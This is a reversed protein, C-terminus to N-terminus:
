FEVTLTGTFTRYNPYSYEDFRFNTPNDRLAVEPDWGSYDTWTVLNRGSVAVKVKNFIDSLGGLQSNKFTYGVSVERLKTFTGDEVFHSSASALNYLNSAGNSYQTHKGQAGYDQLDQHRDNFYLLQKTYNYIDGGQQHDVLVYLFAGKYDLTTSLGLNWEPNSNGINTAIKTGTEDALYVPQEFETGVSSVINGNEDLTKPIVYGDSNIEFMDTTLEMGGIPNGGVGNVVVGDVVTLQSIDTLLQNGYMAGYPLDEEVRFLDFATNTNRTFAPIGGLDTIEQTIKDWNLTATWNLDRKKVIDATLGFELATSQIEGVNQWQATFGAVSSLPVLIYDNQTSSVAYNAELSFRGGFRIDTGVELEQVTSPKLDKNGLINRSTGTQNVSFTEYQASFPPRQGSTGFSARLKWEDVGNIDMDETLRYALSGRYYWQRRENEGFSSSGDNRIMGGIILKDQYDLQADFFVNEAIERFFFSGANINELAGINQIGNAVFNTGGINYLDGQLDEYLYKLTFVGNFDTGLETDYQLQGSAVSKNQRENFLQMGGQNEVFASADFFNKPRVFFGDENTKDISYSVEASLNDTLAYEASLIGLIREREFGWDLATANYLPSEANTTSIAFGDPTPDYESISADYNDSFNGGADLDIFPEYTLLGFFLNEGQGQEAVEVGDTLGYMSRFKLTLKDTPRMDLNARFNRRKYSPLADIVGDSVQNSFSLLYNVKQGTNRLSINNNYFAGGSMFRDVNDFTPSLFDNVFRSEPDLTIVTSGTLDFGFNSTEPTTPDQDWDGMRVGMPDNAFPHKTAIPYANAIQSFGYENKLSVRLGDGDSNGTKTIIQIVGNGALSGYLASAAAGKIVEMSEVDDMNIDRLDGETLIGDIIILPRQSGSISSSGRLRIESAYSPNGSAQVIRVGPAKSRLANGPDVGPVKELAEENVKSVAFGLKKTSTGKGVGTIVIEDILEGESMSIDINSVGAISVTQTGYGTYSIVLNDSGDPVELSFKGDIDTITGLATNEIIVNAGIVPLGTEDIVTGTVTRQAAAYGVALVMAFFLMSLKKM